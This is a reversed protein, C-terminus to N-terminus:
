RKYRAATCRGSGLASVVAVFVASRIGWGPEVRLCWFCFLQACPKGNVMRRSYYAGVPCSVPHPAPHYRSLKPLHLDHTRIWWGSWKPYSPGVRIEDFYFRENYEFYVEDFRDQTVNGEHISIPEKLLTPGRGAIDLVRYIEVRDPEDDTKGWRCHGVILHPKDAPLTIASVFTNSM